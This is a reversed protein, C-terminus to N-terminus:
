CTAAVKLAERLDVDGTYLARGIIAAEVGCDALRRLDEVRSVGGAAVVALSVKSTLREYMEFNPSGAVGDRSIDTYVIRQVGMQELEDIFELADLDTGETWGELSV